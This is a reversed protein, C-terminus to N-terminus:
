HIGQLVSHHSLAICHFRLRGFASDEGFEEGHLIMVIGLSDIPLLLEPDAFADNKKKKSLVHQYTESVALLRNL